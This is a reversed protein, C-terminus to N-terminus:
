YSLIKWIYIVATSSLGIIFSSVITKINNSFLLNVNDVIYFLNNLLTFNSNRTLNKTILIILKFVDSIFFLSISFITINYFLDNLFKIFENKSICNMFEDKDIVGKIVHDKIWSEKIESEKIESEKIESIRTIQSNNVIYEYKIRINDLEFSGDTLLLKVIRKKMNSSASKNDIKFIIKNINCPLSINKNISWIGNDDKNELIYRFMIYEEKAKFIELLHESIVSNSAIVKDQTVLIDSTIFPVDVNININNMIDYIKNKQDTYKTITLLINNMAYVLLMYFLIILLIKSEFFNFCIYFLVVLTSVMSGLYVNYLLWINNVKQMAIDEDTLNYKQIIINNIQSCNMYQKHCDSNFVHKVDDNSSYESISNYGTSYNILSLYIILLIYGYGYKNM